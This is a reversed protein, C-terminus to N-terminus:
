REMKNKIREKRGEFGTKTGDDLGLELAKDCVNLAKQYNAQKQHIIELRKFAPIRPPEGNWEDLFEDITKIDEQCYKICKEIADDRDDRQKYYLDILTNYVFHRDTATSDEVELAKLLVKEAFDYDKENAATSGVGKLYGQATQTTSQVSDDLLNLEGGTGFFTSYEHLKEREEESLSRYWGDLGFYELLDPTSDRSPKLFDLLRSWM